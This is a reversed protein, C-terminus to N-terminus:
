RAAPNANEAASREAAHLPLLVVEVTVGDVGAGVRALTAPCYWPVTLSLTNPPPLASPSKECDPEATPPRSREAYAEFVTNFETAITTDRDLESLPVAIAVIPLAAHVKLTLPV